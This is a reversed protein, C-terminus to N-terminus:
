VYLQGPTTTAPATPKTTWDPPLTSSGGGLGPLEDLPIGGGLLSGGHKRLDPIAPVTPSLVHEVVKALGSMLSGVRAGAAQSSVAADLVALALM